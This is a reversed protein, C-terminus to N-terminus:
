GEDGSELASEFAWVDDLKGTWGDGSLGVTITLGRELGNRSWLALRESTVGFVGSRLDPPGGSHSISFPGEHSEELSRQVGVEPYRHCDVAPTMTTLQSKLNELLSHSTSKVTRPSTLRLHPTTPSPAIENGYEQKYRQGYPICMCRPDVPFFSARQVDANVGKSLTAHSKSTVSSQSM